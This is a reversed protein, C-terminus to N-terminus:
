CFNVRSPLTKKDLKCTKRRFCCMCPYGIFVSIIECGTDQTNCVDGYLCTSAQACYFYNCFKKKNERM